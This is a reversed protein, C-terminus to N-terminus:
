NNIKSDPSLKTAYVGDGCVADGQSELSPRLEGTKMIADAGEENTYHYLTTKNDESM